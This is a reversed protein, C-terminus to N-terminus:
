SLVKLTASVVSIPGSLCKSWKSVSMTNPDLATFSDTKYPIMRSKNPALFKLIKEKKFHSNMM